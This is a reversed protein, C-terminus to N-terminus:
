SYAKFQFVLEFTIIQASNTWKLVAPAGTPSAGKQLTNDGYPCQGDPTPPTFAQWTKLKKSSQQSWVIQIKQSKEVTRFLNQGPCELFTKTKTGAWKSGSSSSHSTSSMPSSPSISGYLVLVNWFPTGRTIVTWPYGSVWCKSWFGM